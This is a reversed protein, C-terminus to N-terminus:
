APLYSCIYECIGTAVDITFGSKGPVDFHQGATYTRADCQGDLTVRCSGAVIEMREPAGTGFHYSGSYILGLTKKEGSAFVVSHSVVRGDFYVNAKTHVTVGTFETPLSM